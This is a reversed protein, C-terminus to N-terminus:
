TSSTPAKQDNGPAHVHWGDETPCRAATLGGLSEDVLAQAAEKALLARGECRACRPAQSYVHGATM